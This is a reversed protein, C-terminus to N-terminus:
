QTWITEWKDFPHDEGCEPPLCEGCYFCVTDCKSDVIFEVGDYHRADTNLWYHCEGDVRQIKVSILPPADGVVEIKQRICDPLKTSECNEDKCCSNLVFSFMILLFVKM